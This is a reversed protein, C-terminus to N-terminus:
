GKFLQRTVNITEGNFDVARHKKDELYFTIHSLDSKKLRKFFTIRTKKYIKRWRPKDPAFSYLIPERVGYVISGNICNCKPPIKDTGTIINLKENKYTEPILQIFGKLPDNLPGSYSQTSGLITYFFFKTFRITGNTTLITKRRISDVTNNVKVKNPVSSNSM